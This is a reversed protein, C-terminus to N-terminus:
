QTIEILEKVKNTLEDRQDLAIAEKAICICIRRTKDISKVSPQVVQIFIIGVDPHVKERDPFEWINHWSEDNPGRAAYHQKSRNKGLIQIIVALYNRYFGVQKRQHNIQKVLKPMKPLKCVTDDDQDDAIVKVVKCQIGVALAPMERDCLIVDIDSENHIDTIPHRVSFAISPDHVFGLKSLLLNRGNRPNFLWKLITEETRSTVDDELVTSGDDQFLIYKDRMPNGPGFEISDIVICDSKTYIAM